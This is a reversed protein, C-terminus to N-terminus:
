QVQAGAQLVVASSPPVTLDAAGSGDVDVRLGTCGLAAPAGSFIDCYSGAALGTTFTHHLASVGNNIAVFGRDGRSFAIGDVGDDWWNTVPAAATAKRFAVLRAVYPRRHECLWGSKPTPTTDACAVPLTAGSADSPPGVDRGAATARPFAYGSLISPTGYPWTLMFATALDYTVGDDYYLSTARETDHNDVFVVARDSPLWGDGLGRLGALSAGGVGLFADSVASVKFETVDVDAAGAGTTLYDAAAIAEGGHDIVEFFYYPLPGGVPATVRRLIADLDAPDVHKAADVRFGAVGLALLSSFYGAIADRVHASSTDLDALGVLECRRVREPATKYDADAIACAPMHFDAPGYLGPYSYKTFAAGNSGVGHAQATMHNIVTDAYIAVGVAACRRVMDAFEEGTGSRSRALSYGVTQYRQWWPAGPLVAHESPPSIQVGAFGAPGLTTECEKAVDTWRWEFLHVFVGGPPPAGLRALADGAADTGVDGGADSGADNGPEVVHIETPAEARCAALAVPVLLLASKM